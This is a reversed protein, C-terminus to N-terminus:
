SLSKGGVNLPLIVVNLYHLKICSHRSLILSPYQFLLATLLFGCENWVDIDEFFSLKGRFLLDM